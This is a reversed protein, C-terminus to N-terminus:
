TTAMAAVVETWYLWIQWTKIIPFTMAGNSESLVMFEALTDSNDDDDGDGGAVM